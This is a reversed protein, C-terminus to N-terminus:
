LYNVLVSLCNGHVCRLSYFFLDTRQEVLVLVVGVLFNGLFASKFNGYYKKISITFLVSNMKKTVQTVQMQENKLYTYRKKEYIM